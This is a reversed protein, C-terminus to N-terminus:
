ALAAKGTGSCRSCPRYKAGESVSWGAWTQGTSKCNWCLGSSEYKETAARM